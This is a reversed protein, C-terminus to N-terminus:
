VAILSALWKWAATLGYDFVAVVAILWFVAGFVRGLGDEAKAAREPNIIIQRQDRM